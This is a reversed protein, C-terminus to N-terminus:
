YKYYVYLSGIRDVLELCQKDSKSYAKVEMCWQLLRKKYRQWKKYTTLEAFLESFTTATEMRDIEKEIDRIRNSLDIATATFRYNSKDKQIGWYSSNNLSAFLHFKENMKWIADKKVLCIEMKGFVNREEVAIVRFDHQEIAEKIDDWNEYFESSQDENAALSIFVEVVEGNNDMSYFEDILFGAETLSLGLDDMKDVPM